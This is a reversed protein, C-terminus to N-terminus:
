RAPDAAARLVSRQIRFNSPRDSDRGGTVLGGSATLWPSSKSKTAEFCTCWASLSGRFSTAGRAADMALGPVQTRPSLMSPTGYSRAFATRQRLTELPTGTM